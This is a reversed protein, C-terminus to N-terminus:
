LVALDRSPIGALTTETLPLLIEFRSGGCPNPNVRMTGAHHQTIIFYSIFLGLGTGEGLPKTTFFPEFVRQRVSEAMGIGNDEVVMCVNEGDRVVLLSIRGATGSKSNAECAQVANKLLNLLVQQIESAHCMVPALTQDYERIIEIRELNYRSKLEYDSQMLEVARDMLECLRCALMTNVRSRSFTLMNKVIAAAREGSSHITQLMQPIERDKMYAQISEISTGAREAAARNPASDTSIRQWAVGANQLMIALPNNIEHAMGAALGGISLMKASQTAMEQMRVRHTVDRVATIRVPRGAYSAVRAQAECIFRSGDKRIGTHENNTDRGSAIQSLIMERDEPAIMLRVEMGIIEERQYGYIRAFQENCDIARGNQHIIIGEFTAASLVEFRELSQRLLEKSDLVTQEALKRETIERVTTIVGIITGDAARLPGMLQWSWGGRGTEPVQYPFDPSSITEGEMAREIMAMVGVERLFPFLEMPTKEMVDAAAMGTVREMAPSWVRYRFQRDIVIIGDQVSAIVQNNFRNAEQLAFQFDKQQTIDQAVGAYHKLNGHSDNVPFGRDFVWRISGDPRIVRYEHAFAQGAKQMPLIKMVNPLDDPHVADLFSKSDAMLSQCSRGWVKEYAPSIYLTNGTATDAMWFVEEINETLQRFRERERSVQQLARRTAEVVVAISLGCAIWAMLTLQVVVLVRQGSPVTAVYPGLGSLSGGLAFAALIIAAASVGLVNTRLSIWILFPVTALLPRNVVYSGAPMHHCFLVYNLLAFGGFIFATELKGAVWFHGRAPWRYSLAVPVVVLMGLGDALVRREWFGPLDTGRALYFWAGAAIAGGLANGVAAAIFLRVIQLLTGFDVDDSGFRGVIGAAVLAECVAAIVFGISASYSIGAIWNVVLCAVAQGLLVWHWRRRDLRALMAIIIANVLWIPATKDSTILLKLSLLGVILCIGAAMGVLALGSLRDLPTSSYAAPKSLTIAM